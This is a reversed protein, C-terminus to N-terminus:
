KKPTRPNEKPKQQTTRIVIMATDLFPVFKELENYEVINQFLVLQGKPTIRKDAILNPKNLCFEIWAIFPVTFRENMLATQILIGQSNTLKTASDEGLFLFTPGLADRILPMAISVLNELRAVQQVGVELIEITEGKLTVYKPPKGTILTEIEQQQIKDDLQTM